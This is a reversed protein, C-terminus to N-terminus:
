LDDAEKPITVVAHPRIAAPSVRSWRAIAGSPEAEEDRKDEGEEEEEKEEEEEESQATSTATTRLARAAV